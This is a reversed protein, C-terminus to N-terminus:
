YISPRAAHAQHRAPKSRQRLQRSGYKKARDEAVLRAHRSDTQDILNLLRTTGIIWFGRFKIGIPENRAAAKECEKRMTEDCCQWVDAAEDLTLAGGALIHGIVDDDRELQQVYAMLQRINDTIRRMLPNNIM